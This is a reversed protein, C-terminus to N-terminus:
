CFNYLIQVRVLFITLYFVTDLLYLARIPRNQLLFVLITNLSNIVKNFKTCKYLGWYQKPARTASHNLNKAGHCLGLVVYM